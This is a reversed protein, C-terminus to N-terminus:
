MYLSYKIEEFRAKDDAEMKQAAEEENQKQLADQTMKELEIQRQVVDLRMKVLAMDNQKTLEGLLASLLQYAGPELTLQVQPQHQLPTNFFGNQFLRPIPSSSPIPTEPRSGEINSFLEEDDQAYIEADSPEYDSESSTAESAKTYINDM